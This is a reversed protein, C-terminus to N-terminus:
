ASAFPSSATPSAGGASPGTPAAAPTPTGAVEARYTFTYAADGDAALDDAATSFERMLVILGDDKKREEEPALAKLKSELASTIRDMMQKVLEAVRQEREGDALAADEETLEVRAPGEVDYEQVVPSLYNDAKGPPIALYSGEAEDLPGQCGLLALSV